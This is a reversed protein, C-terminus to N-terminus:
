SVQKFEFAAASFPMPNATNRDIFQKAWDFRIRPGRVGPLNVLANPPIVGDKKWEYFTSSKIGVAACFDKITLCLPEM